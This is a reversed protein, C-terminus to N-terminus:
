QKGTDVVLAPEPAPVKAPQGLRRYDELVMAVAWM